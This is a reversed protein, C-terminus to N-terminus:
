ALPILLEARAGQGDLRLELSAHGAYRTQLRQRLNALAMGSSPKGRVKPTSDGLGNDEVSLALMGDQLRAAIHVIGGELKPELGHRIANEVLPQLLLTPLHAARVADDAEIRFALREEMRIQLLQLYSSAMELEEEVTSEARRLQGLSARLYDTFAELMQKARAADYDILSQVNALTNFLFHPEMQAQLLRLQAEAAQLQLAQRKM